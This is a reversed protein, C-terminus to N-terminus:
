ATKVILKHVYTNTVYKFTEENKTLRVRVYRVYTYFIKFALSQICIWQINRMAKAYIEILLRM